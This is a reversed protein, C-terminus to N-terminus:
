PAHDKFMQIIRPRLPLFTTLYMYELFIIRAVSYHIVSPLIPSLLVQCFISTGQHHNTSIFSLLHIWFSNSGSSQNFQILSPTLSAGLNLIQATPGTNFYGIALTLMHRLGLLNPCGFHSFMKTQSICYNSLNIMM